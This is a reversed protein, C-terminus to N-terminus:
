YKYIWKGGNKEVAEGYAGLLDEGPLGAGETKALWADWVPLFADRWLQKEAATPVYITAGAAILADKGQKTRAELSGLLANISNEGAEDIIKQTKRPLSQYSNENMILMINTSAADLEVVYRIFDEFSFDAATQYVTMTAEIVGTDLATYMEGYSVTVATAGATDLIQTKVGGEGRVRVGSLDAPAKIKVGKTLIHNPPAMGPAVYHVEEYFVDDMLGENILEHVARLHSEWDSTVFPLEFAEFLPYKGPSVIPMWMSFDLGGSQLLDFHTPANGLAGGPIITIKVQGNTKEEVEKAFAEYQVDYVGGDPSWHGLKFEVPGGSTPSACGGVALITALLIMSAVTLIKVLPKMKM